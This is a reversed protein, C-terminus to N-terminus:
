NAKNWFCFKNVIRQHMRAQQKKMLLLEVIISQKNPDIVRGNMKFGNMLEYGHKTLEEQLMQKSPGKDTGLNNPISYGSKLLQRGWVEFNLSGDKLYEILQQTTHSFRFITRFNFNPNVSTSVKESVTYHEDVFVRFRVYIDQLLKIKTTFIILIHFTSVTFKVPLGRCGLIKVIFQFPKGLLEQPSDVYVDDHEQYQNGQENCPVVELNIIGIEQGTHDTMSLQEKVEVKYALPQLYLQSTGILCEGQLDEM